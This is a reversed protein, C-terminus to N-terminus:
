NGNATQPSLHRVVPGQRASPHSQDIPQPGNHIQAALPKGLYDQYPGQPKEAVAIRSLPSINTDDM